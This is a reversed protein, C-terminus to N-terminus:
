ATKWSVLVQDMWRKTESMLIAPDNSSIPSGYRLRATIRKESFRKLFHPVFASDGVWYDEKSGYELVAPVIDIGETAALQFGGRKFDGTLDTDFTTGEPYLIVPIREQQITNTIAGLTKRRSSVSERKLYLIGTVKAGYGLVPWNAVEAKSVPYALVDHLILMPDIYSRHNCMILCPKEPPTGEITLDIGIAPLLHRAWKRRRKMSYQPNYGKIASVLMIGAVIWITYFALYALRWVARLQTM